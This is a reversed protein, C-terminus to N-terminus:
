VPEGGRGGGGLGQCVWLLACGGQRNAVTHALQFSGPVFCALVWQAAGVLRLAAGLLRRYTGGLLRGVLGLLGVLLGLLIEELSQWTTLPM